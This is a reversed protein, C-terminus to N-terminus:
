RGSRIFVGSRGFDRRRDRRPGHPHGPLGPRIDGELPEDVDRSRPRDARGPHADAPVLRAQATSGTTRRPSASGVGVDRGRDKWSRNACDASRYPLDHALAREFPYPTVERGYALRYITELSVALERMRHINRMTPALLRGNTAKNTLARDSSASREFRRSMVNVM